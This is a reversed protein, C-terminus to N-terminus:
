DRSHTSIVIRRVELLFRVKRAVESWIEDGASSGRGDCAVLNGVVKEPAAAM